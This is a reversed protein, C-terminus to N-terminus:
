RLKIVEFGYILYKDCTNSLCNLNGFTINGNKVLTLELKAYCKPCQSLRKSKM